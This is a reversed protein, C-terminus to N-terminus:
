LIVTVSFTSFTPGEYVAPPFSFHHLWKPFCDPVIKRLIVLMSNGHSGAIGSRLIYEFLLLFVHGRFVFIYHINKATNSMSDFAPFLQFTCSDIFPYIFYLTDMCHLMNPCYFISVCAIVHLFKSFMINLSHLWDCIVLYSGMGIFHRCLDVFYILLQKPSPSPPHPPHYSFTVLNRKSPMFIKVNVTIICMDTFLPFIMSNCVKFPHIAHYTFYLKLLATSVLLPSLFVLHKLMVLLSLTPCFIDVCKQFISIRHLLPLHSASCLFHQCVLECWLVGSSPCGPQM